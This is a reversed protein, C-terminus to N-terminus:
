ASASKVAEIYSFDISTGDVRHVYFGSSSWGTGRNLQRTFHSVGAGAKTEEGPLLRGDYPVLLACLDEHDQPDAIREGDKYRALMQKFHEKAEGQKAWFRGNSLSVKKTM